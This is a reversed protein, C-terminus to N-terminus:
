HVPQAPMAPQVPGPENSTMRNDRVQQRESECTPDGNCPPQQRDLEVGEIVTQAPVAQQVQNEPMDEIQPQAIVGELPDTPVVAPNAEPTDVVLEIDADPLNYPPPDTGPDAIGQDMTLQDQAGDTMAVCAGYGGGGLALIAVVTIMWNKKEM